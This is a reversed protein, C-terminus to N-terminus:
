MTKKCGQPVGSDVIYVMLAVHFNLYVFINIKTFFIFILILKDIWGDTQDILSNGSAMQCCHSIINEKEKDRCSHTMNPLISVCGFM